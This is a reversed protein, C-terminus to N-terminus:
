PHRTGYRVPLVPPISRVQTYGHKIGATNTPVQGGLVMAVGEAIRGPTGADTQEGSANDDTEGRQVAPNGASGATPAGPLASQQM